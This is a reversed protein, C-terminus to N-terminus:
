RRPRPACRVHFIIWLTALVFGTMLCLFWITQYFAPLVIFTLRAGETNWLGDNNCAIVRFRYQGPRLDSYFAQRRTGPEQWNKDRGELKYRFSEKQPAVFSLATYDIELDRTLAPLRLRSQPSYSRRDAVIGEIHVPPPMSNAALDPDITQVLVGNAFWLRGDTTRAASAFPPRNPQAGDLIGFLHAQVIARPDDWWQRLESSAIEVLGCETYLWLNERDDRIFSFV